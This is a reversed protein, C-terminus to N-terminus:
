DLDWAYTAINGILGAWSEKVDCGMSLQKMTMPKISGGVRV